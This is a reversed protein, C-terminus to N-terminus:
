HGHIKKLRAQGKVLKVENLVTDSEYGSDKDKSM